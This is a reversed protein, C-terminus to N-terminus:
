LVTLITLNLLIELYRVSKYSVLPGVRGQNLAGQGLGTILALDNASIVHFCACSHLNRLWVFIFHLISHMCDHLNSNLFFSGYACDLQFKRLDVAGIRSLAAMHDAYIPTSLFLCFIWSVLKMWLEWCRSSLLGENKRSCQVGKAMDKLHNHISCLQGMGM